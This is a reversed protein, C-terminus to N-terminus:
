ISGPGIRHDDELLRSQPIDEVLKASGAARGTEETTQGRTKKQRALTWAIGKKIYKRWANCM